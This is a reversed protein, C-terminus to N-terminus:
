DMKVQTSQIVGRWYQQERAVYAGADRPNLALVELDPSLRARVAPSKFAENFRQYLLDVVEPPTGAPAFLGQWFQGRVEPHGSEAFTSVEPLIALRQRSTVGVIKLKKAQHHVLFTDLIDFMAPLQGGLMEGIAPPAGRYAVAEVSLRADLGLAEAMLHGSGGKATAGVLAPKGQSKVWAVYERVNTAPVNNAVALVLPGQFGLFVPQFEEAKYSVNPVLLPVTTFTAGAFWGITYGDAPAKTVALAAPVTNGGTRNEVVLTMNHSRQLEDAITRVVKDSLGGAAYPMVMRIPKNPYAGAANQAAAPLVSLCAAALLATSFLKMPIDKAHTM